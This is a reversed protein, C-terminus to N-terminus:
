KNDYRTWTLLVREAVSAVLNAGSTGINPLEIDVYGVGDTGTVRMTIFGSGMNYWRSISGAPTGPHAVHDVTFTSKTVDYIMAGDYVKTAILDSYDTGVGMYQYGNCLQVSNVGGVPVNSLGRLIFSFHYVGDRLIRLGSYVGDQSQWTTLLTNATKSGLSPSFTDLGRGAVITRDKTKFPYYRSNVVPTVGEFELTDSFVGGLTTNQLATTMRQSELITREPIVPEPAVSESSMIPKLLTIDYSVWLQGITTGSAQPLGDTMVQLKAFNYFRADSTVADQNGPDSVYLQLGNKAFEKCEIAHIISLSPKNVVAFQSNEFAVLNPYPVDNVNYNTAIGVTGLSGASSYESTMSKYTIVMGNIRYQQYNRAIKSLWPFLASNGPNIDFTINNYQTSDVPVALSQVFERHTVRVENNGVGFSPVDSSSFSNRTMSNEQVVYDGYGTIKSIGAGMVAGAKAGLPGFLGGASMGAKAFSGKPIRSMVVDLKNSLANLKKGAENPMNNKNKNKRIPPM